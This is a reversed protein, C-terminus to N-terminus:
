CSRIISAFSRGDADRLAPLALLDLCTPMLDVITMSEKCVNGKRVHPSCILAFVQQAKDELSDHSALPYPVDEERQCALWVGEVPSVLMDAYRSDCGRELLTKKSLVQDIYPLNKLQSELTSAEEESYSAFYLQCSISSSVLLIEWGERPKGVAVKKGTMKRIYDAMEEAKSKGTFHVMGHDTALLLTTDKWLGRESLASILEGLKEDIGKLCKQVEIVRNEETQMIPAHNNHGVTDLDDCYLFLAQPLQEFEWTNGNVTLRKTLVLNTLLDFRLRYDGGPQVYLHEKDEASCGHGDLAFQQISLTHINMEKCVDAVTQADNHRLCPVITNNSRDLFEYCNHTVSPTAGSVLSCQMPVTISPILTRINSFYCSSAILASLNPLQEERNPMSSYYYQAFGDLNIYLFNGDM